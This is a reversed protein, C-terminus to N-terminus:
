HKKQEEGAGPKAAPQCSAILVIQELLWVSRVVCISAGLGTTAAAYFGLHWPRDDRDGILALIAALCAAGLVWTTLIFAKYLTPYHKSERVIALQPLASFGLIISVATLVFGLLAGFVSALAGYIPARNGRLLCEVERGRGSRELWIAVGTAICAVLLPELWHFNLKWFRL